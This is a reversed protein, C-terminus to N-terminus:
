QGLILADAGGPHKVSLPREALAQLSNSQSVSSGQPAPGGPAWSKCQFGQPCQAQSVLRLPHSLRQCQGQLAWRGPARHRHCGEGCRSACAVATASIRGADQASADIVENRAQSVAPPTEVKCIFCDLSLPNLFSALTLASPRSM